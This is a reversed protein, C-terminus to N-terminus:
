RKGLNVGLLRAVALVHGQDALLVEGLDSWGGCNGVRASRGRRGRDVGGAHVGSIQHVLVLVIQILQFKGESFFVLIM